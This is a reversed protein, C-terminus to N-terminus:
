LEKLVDTQARILEAYGVHYEPADGGHIVLRNIMLAPLDSRDM